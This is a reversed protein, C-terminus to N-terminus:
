ASSSLAMDAAPKAADPINDDPGLASRQGDHHIAASDTM